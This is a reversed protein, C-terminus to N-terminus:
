ASTPGREAYGSEGGGTVCELDVVAHHRLVEALNFSSIAEWPFVTGDVVGRELANYTEPAAINVPIGGLAKVM